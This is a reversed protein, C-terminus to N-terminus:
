ALAQVRLQLSTPLPGLSYPALHMRGPADFKSIKVCISSALWISHSRRRLQGRKGGGEEEEGRKRQRWRLIRVLCVYFCYGDEFFGGVEVVM